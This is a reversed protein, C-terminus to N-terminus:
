SITESVYKDWQGQISENFHTAETDFNMQNTKVRQAFKFVDFKSTNAGYTGSDLRGWAYWLAQNFALNARAETEMAKRAAASNLINESM